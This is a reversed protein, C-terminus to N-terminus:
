LGLKPKVHVGTLVVPLANHQKLHMRRKVPGNLKIAFRKHAIAATFRSQRAVGIFLAGYPAATHVPARLHAFLGRQVIQVWHGYGLRAALKGLLALGLWVTQCLQSRPIVGSKQVFGLQGHATGDGM